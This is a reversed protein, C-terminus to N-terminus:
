FVARAVLQGHCCRQLGHNPSTMGLLQSPFCHFHSVKQENSHSSESQTAARQCGIPLMGVIWRQRSGFSALLDAEVVEFAQKVGLLFPRAFRTRSAARAGWAGLNEGVLVQPAVLIASARRAVVVRETGGDINRSARAAALVDDAGDSFEGLARDM